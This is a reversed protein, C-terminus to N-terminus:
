VQDYRLGLTAQWRESLDLQDEIFLGQSLASEDQQQRLQGREGLLNDYRRRDDRQAELDFGTTIKHPLGILERHHSYQGGLGGFYREFTTQGSTTFGLRNGFERHGLYSRLQYEDAGAAYGDWVLGLRQQRIYED